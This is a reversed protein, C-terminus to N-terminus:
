VKVKVLAGMLEKASIAKVESKAFIIDKKSFEVDFYYETKGIYRSMRHGGPCRIDKEVVVELEQGAFKKKYEAELRKGLDRLKKARQEIEQRTVKNPMKAALTKEHVSFPFVHLRSFQMEKIFNYTQLFDKKTESPFGVMVDTTIAIDPILKRIKRIKNKFYKVKYPRNMLKLIKDSGSQLPIPLHKCIKNSKAILKILEDSVETVEISSLRVRGLDKIAILIKLLDVLIGEERRPRRLGDEGYLGLHIGCLVVERYGAKVAQKVENIVEPMPRSYLKGRTYPIICYSCFQECGDQIKIFYRSRLSSLESAESSLEKKIETMRSDRRKRPSLIGHFKFLLKIRKILGDFDGVGWVMDVGLKKVEDYYVKPWCGMVATKAKKNESRAKNIMRKSKHIAIQTVCCTNIVAIDANKNVLKFGAFILKRSLDLSDYQNVKCGLTYIKFKLNSM